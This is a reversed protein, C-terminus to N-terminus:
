PTASPTATAGAATVQAVLAEFYGPQSWNNGITEGNVFIGPTGWRPQNAALFATNVVDYQSEVLPGYTKDNVCSTFAAGTIGAKAALSLVTAEPLGSGGEAPQNAYLSDHFAKFKDAPACYAASAARTSYGQSSGDLIAIPSYIVTAKNEQALKVLSAGQTDELNKCVPCQFDEWIQIKVPGTGYSFGGGVSIGAPTAVTTDPGDSGSRQAIVFAVAGAILVLGIIVALNRTRAKKAARERAAKAAAVREARGVPSQTGSRVAPDGSTKPM